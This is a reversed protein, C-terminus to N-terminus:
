HADGQRETERENAGLKMGLGPALDLRDHRPFGLMARGIGWRAWRLLQLLLDLLLAQDVLSVPLVLCIPALRTLLGRQRLAGNKLFGCRMM